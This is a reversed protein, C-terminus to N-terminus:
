TIEIQDWHWTQGEVGGPDKPPDYSADQFIVRARDPFAGPATNVLTGGDREQTFTVTGDGNDVLCHRYREAKDAVQFVNGALFSTEQQGMFTRPSGRLLEVLFTGDTIRLASPDVEQTTPSIYDLRGDNAEYTEEPVVVVQTWKRGGLDTLNQEWCIRSFDSVPRNPAFSVLAYGFTDMSTMVHGSEPGKPACWWFSESHDDSHVVRQTDPGGCHLDHDGSWSEMENEFPHHVDTQFRDRFGAETSFDEVFDGDDDAIPASTSTTTTAPPSPPTTSADTAASRLGGIGGSGRLVLPVAVASALVVAAIPIALRKTRRFGGTGV